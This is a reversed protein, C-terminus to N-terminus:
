IFGRWWYATSIEGAVTMQGNLKAANTNILVCSPSLSACQLTCRMRELLLSAFLTVVSAPLWCMGGKLSKGRSWMAPRALLGPAGYLQLQHRPWTPSMQDCRWHTGHEGYWLTWLSLLCLMTARPEHLLCPGGALTKRYGAVFIDQRFACLYAM